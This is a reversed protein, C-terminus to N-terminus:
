AARRDPQRRSTTDALTWWDRGAENWPLSATEPRPWDALPTPSYVGLTGNRIQDIDAAQGFIQVSLFLLPLILLFLVPKFPFSNKLKTM